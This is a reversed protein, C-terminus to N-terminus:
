VHLNAHGVVHIGWGCQGLHVFAVWHEVHDTARTPLVSNDPLTQSSHHRYAPEFDVYM